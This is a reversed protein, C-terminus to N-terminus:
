NPNHTICKVALDLPRVCVWYEESGGGEKRRKAKSDSGEGDHGRKRANGKEGSARAAMVALDPFESPDADVHKWDRIDAKPMGKGNFHADIHDFRESHAAARGTPEITIQCFGCWFRSGFNRGMRCDALKKDLVVLDHIGHDKRLHAQLSERRHCVKGCQPLNDAAREACRWIELQYHQSNEHRKWDNKSGFSKECNAYTCHYPKAHRKQHKRSSENTHPM